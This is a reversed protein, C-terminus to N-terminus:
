EKVETESSRTPGRTRYSRRVAARKAAARVTAMRDKRSPCARAMEEGLPISGSTVIRGRRSTRGEERASMRQFEQRHRIWIAVGSREPTYGNRFVGALGRGKGPGVTHTSDAAYVGIHLSMQLKPTM